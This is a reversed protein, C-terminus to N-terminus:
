KWFRAVIFCLNVFASVSMASFFIRKGREARRVRREMDAALMPRIMRGTESRRDDIESDPIYRVTGAEVQMARLELEDKWSM